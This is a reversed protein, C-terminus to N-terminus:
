PAIEPAAEEPAGIVGEVEKGTPVVALDADSLQQFGLKRHEKNVRELGMKNLRVKKVRLMHHNQWDLDEQTLEPLGTMRQDEEAFATIGVGLCTVMIIIIGVIWANFCANNTRTM